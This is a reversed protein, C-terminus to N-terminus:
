ETFEDEVFEEYSRHYEYDVEYHSSNLDDRIYLTLEGDNSKLLESIRELVVSDSDGTSSDVLVDDDVIYTFSMIDYGNDEYCSSEDIVYLDNVRKDDAYQDEVKEKEEDDDEHSKGMTSYDLKKVIGQYDVDEDITVPEESAEKDFEEAIEEDYGNDEVDEGSYVKRAEVAADKKRYYERIGAVDEEYLKQYKNKVLIYTIGAGAGAGVIGSIAAVLGNNM